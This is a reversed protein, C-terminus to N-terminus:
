YNARQRKDPDSVSFHAAFSFLLHPAGISLGQSMQIFEYGFMEMIILSILSLILISNRQVCLAAWDCIASPNTLARKPLRKSAKLAPMAGVLTFGHTTVTIASDPISM